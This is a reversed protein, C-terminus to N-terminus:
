TVQWKGNHCATCRYDEKKKQLNLHKRSTTTTAGNGTAQPEMDMDQEQQMNENDSEYYEEYEDNYLEVLAEEAILQDVDLFYEEYTDEM